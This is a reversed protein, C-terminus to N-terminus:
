ALIGKKESQPLKKEEEEEKESSSRNQRVDGEGQVV